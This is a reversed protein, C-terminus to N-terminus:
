SHGTEQRTTVDLDPHPSEYYQPPRSREVEDRPLARLPISVDVASGETKPQYPPPAEGHEDLGEDRHVLVAGNARYRGHLLRHTGTWGELDRALAQQGSRHLRDRQRKRWRNILWLFLAILVILIALLLFYYRFTKAESTQADNFDQEDEASDFPYNSDNSSPSVENPLVGITTMRAVLTTPTPLQAAMM